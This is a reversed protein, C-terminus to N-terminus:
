TATAVRIETRRDAGSGGPDRKATELVPSNTPDIELHTTLKPNLGKEQLLLCLPFSAHAKSLIFKDRKPDDPNSPDVDLYYNYLAVLLDVRDARVDFFPRPVSALGDRPESEKKEYRRGEEEPQGSEGM